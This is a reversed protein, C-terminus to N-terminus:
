KVLIELEGASVYGRRCGYRARIDTITYQRIDKVRFLNRMESTLRNGRSKFIIDKGRFHTHLEFYIVQPRARFDGNSFAARIGIFEKLEERTMEVAGTKGEINAEVLPEIVEYESIGLLTSDGEEVQYLSIRCRGEQEPCITGEFVNYYISKAFRAQEVKVRLKSQDLGQTKNFSLEYPIGRGLVERPNDLSMLDSQPLPKCASLVFLLILLFPLKSM